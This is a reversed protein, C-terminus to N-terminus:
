HFNKPEGFDEMGELDGDELDQLANIILEHTEQLGMSTRIVYTGDNYATIGIIGYINEINEDDEIM